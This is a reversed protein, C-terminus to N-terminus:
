DQDPGHFLYTDRWVGEFCHINCQPHSWYGSAEPSNTRGTGLEIWTDRCRVEKIAEQGPGASAYTVMIKGPSERAARACDFGLTHPAAEGCESFVEDRLTTTDLFPVHDFRLLIKYAEILTAWFYM